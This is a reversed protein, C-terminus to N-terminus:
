SLRFSFRRVLDAWERLSAPDVHRWQPKKELWPSRGPGVLRPRYRRCRTPKAATRHQIAATNR